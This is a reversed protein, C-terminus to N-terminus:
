RLYMKKVVKQINETWNWYLRYEGQAYRRTARNAAFTCIHGMRIQM